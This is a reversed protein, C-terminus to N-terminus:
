AEDKVALLREIRFGTEQKVNKFYLDIQKEFEKFHKKSMVEEIKLVDDFFAYLRLSPSNFSRGYELLKAVKWRLIKCAVYYEYSKKDYGQVDLRYHYIGQGKFISTVSYCGFKIKRFGRIAASIGSDTGGLIERLQPLSYWRGDKMTEFLLRMRKTLRERDRVPQYDAGDFDPEKSIAEYFRNLSEQDM